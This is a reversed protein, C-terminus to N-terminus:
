GNNIDRRGARHKISFLFHCIMIIAQSTGIYEAIKKISAKDKFDCYFSYYMRLKQLGSYHLFDARERFWLGYGKPNNLYLDTGKSSLGDTKYEYILVIDNYFRTKYGDNAIRNYVVAETLFNEGEFEPYLYQRHLDTYFAIAREGALVLKGDERFTGMDLFSKDLYDEQFYENCTELYGSGKNAAVAAISSENRISDFWRDIKELADETLYDDSDVVFFIEGEALKIGYNVARHKGGNNQYYYRVPFSLSEDAWGRLLEETNDSSGDDVVLWEFNQFTQKRLSEYLRGLVYARNYTPTFVTIRTMYENKSIDKSM